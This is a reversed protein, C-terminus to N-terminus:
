TTKEEKQSIKAQEELYKARAEAAIVDAYELEARLQKEKARDGAAVSERIGERLM